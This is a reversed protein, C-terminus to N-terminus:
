TFALVAGISLFGIGVVMAARFSTTCPKACGMFAGAVIAALVAGISQNCFDLEDFEAIRFVTCEAVAGVLIASACLPSLLLWKRQPKWSASRVSLWMILIVFTAGYGAAFHGAYDQRHGLFCEYLFLMCGAPIISVSVLRRKTM